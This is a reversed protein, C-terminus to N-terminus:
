SDYEILHVNQFAAINKNIYGSWVKRLIEAFQQYGIATYHGGIADGTLSSDQYLEINAYLDLLHAHYTDAYTSVIERIAENYAIALETNKPMTQVFIMADPSIANLKRIIKSLGGYYTKNDTGIDDATGLEVYRATGSAIDNLGLGVIYAQVKGASQAKPLGREDTQWTLVNTGSAGCNVYENGTLRAMFSPWAFNENTKVISDNVASYIHGSTFSDGCCCVRAFIACTNENTSSKENQGAMWVVTNVTGGSGLYLEALVFDGSTPTYTGIQAVNLVNNRIYVFYTQTTGVALSVTKKTLNSISFVSNSNWVFGSDGVVSFTKATNDIVFSVSDSKKVCFLDKASLTMNKWAKWNSTEGDGYELRHYAGHETVYFQYMGHNNSQSHHITTLLGFTNYLPLNDVMEETVDKNVFYTYGPTADNADSLGSYDSAKLHVNSARLFALDGLDIATKAWESWVYVDADGYEFRYYFDSSENVYMQVKGHVKDHQSNFTFLMAHVGYVPLNAIMEETITKHIFYAVNNNSNNADTFYNTYNEATVRVDSSKFASMIQKRVAEGANDYTRGNFGVRIDMLEADGTTSGETLTTFLDIRAREVAIEERIGVNETNAYAVYEEFEKREVYIFTGEKFSVNATNSVATTIRVTKTYREDATSPIYDYKDGANAYCYLVDNGNKDEFYLGVERWEFGTQLNENTFNGMVVYTNDKTYAKSIDVLVEQKVLKTLFSTNGSYEGSGIGIKTFTLPVGNQLDIQAQIGLNTLKLQGFTAM